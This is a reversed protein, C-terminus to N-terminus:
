REPFIVEVAILQVSYSSVVIHNHNNSAREKIAIFSPLMVVVNDKAEAM